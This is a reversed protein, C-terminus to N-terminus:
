EQRSMPLLQAAIRQLQTELRSDVRGLDTRIVCGGPGVSDDGAFRVHKHSGLQEAIRDALLELTKLEGPNVAITVDTAAGVLEIAELVNAQSVDPGLEVTRKIVKEAIAIALGVLDAHAQALLKDKAQALDGVAKTLASVLDAQQSAFQQRAQAIAQEHGTKRGYDMGERTAERRTQEKLTDLESQGKSLAAQAIAAAQARAEEVIRRAEAEIDSLSFVRLQLGEEAVNEAKIVGSM